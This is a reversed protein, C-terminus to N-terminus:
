SAETKADAPVMMQRAAEATRRAQWQHLSPRTRARVEKHEEAPEDMRRYGEHELLSNVLAANEARLREVEAELARTYRSTTLWRWVAAIQQPINM